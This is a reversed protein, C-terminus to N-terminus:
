KIPLGALKRCLEETMPYAILEQPLGTRLRGPKISYCKAQEIKLPGGPTTTEPDGSNISLPFDNKSLRKSIKGTSMNPLNAGKATKISIIGQSENRIIYPDELIQARAFNVMLASVAILYCLEKKM